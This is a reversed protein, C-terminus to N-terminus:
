TKSRELYVWDFDIDFMGDPSQARVTGNSGDFTIEGRDWNILIGPYAKPNMLEYELVPAFSMDALYRYKLNTQGSGDATFGM